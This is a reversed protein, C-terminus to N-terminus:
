AVQRAIGQVYYDRDPFRVNVLKHKNSFISKTCGSDVYVAVQDRPVWNVVELTIHLPANTNANLLLNGVCAALALVAVMM